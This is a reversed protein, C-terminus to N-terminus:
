GNTFAGDTDLEQLIQMWLGLTIGGGPVGASQGAEVLEQRTAGHEIARKLHAIAGEKRGTFALIGTMIMERYKVPLAQGEKTGQEAYAQFAAFFSPDQQKTWELFSYLKPDAEAYSTTAGKKLLEDKETGM